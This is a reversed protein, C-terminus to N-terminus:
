RYPSNFQLAPHPFDVLGTRYPANFNRVHKNLPYTFFNMKVRGSMFYIVESSDLALSDTSRVSGQCCTGVHKPKECSKQLFPNM